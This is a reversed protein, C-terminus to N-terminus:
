IGYLDKWYLVNEAPFVKKSLKRAFIKREKGARATEKLKGRSGFGGSRFLNQNGMFKLRKLLFPNPGGTEHTDTAQVAV